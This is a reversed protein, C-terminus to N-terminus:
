NQMGFGNNQIQGDRETKEINMGDFLYHVSKDITNEKRESSNVIKLFIDLRKIM